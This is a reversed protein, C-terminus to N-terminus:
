ESGEHPKCGVDSHSTDLVCRGVESPDESNTRTRSESKDSISHVEVFTQRSAWQEVQNTLDLRREEYQRKRHGNAGSPHPFGLLVQQADIQGAGVIRNVAESVAKGLPIVLADPVFALDAALVQDVFASLIPEESFSPNGGSYNKGNLFVPHLLASTSGVLHAADQSTWILGTTPLGLWAAVGIGDLMTVLNTRMSGAFSGNMSAASLVDPIALGERLARAAAMSARWMQQRGPTLGVLFLKAGPNVREFPVYYISLPGRAWLLLEPRIIQEEYLDDPLVALREAFTDICWDKSILGGAGTKIPCLHTVQSHRDFSNM